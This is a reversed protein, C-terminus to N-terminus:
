LTAGEFHLRQTRIANSWLENGLIAAQNDLMIDVENKKYYESSVFPDATVAAKWIGATDYVKMVNNTSDFWLDGINIRQTPPSKSAGHYSDEFDSLAQQAENKYHLANTESQAAAQKASIALSASDAADSASGAASTESSTASEESALARAESQAVSNKDAEVQARWSEVAQADLEVQTASNFAATKYQEADDKASEARQVWNNVSGTITEEIDYITKAVSKVEGNETIKVTTQSGHVIEHLLQTDKNLTAVAQNIQEQLNAM